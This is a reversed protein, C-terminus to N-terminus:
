EDAADSTYLLCPRTWAAQFHMGDCSRGHWRGGWEWGEDEFAKIVEPHAAFNPTQDHFGNRAPDLDIACGYAHMSLSSSGRKVRYVYSGAYISVGWRNATAQDRGAAEWIANLVRLLSAACKKHIVITKVPQGDYTMVFPPHIHTLNETVWKGSAEGGGGRPNGYFADCHAQVPWQQATM